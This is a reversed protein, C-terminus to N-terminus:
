VCFIEAPYDKDIFYTHFDVATVDDFRDLIERGRCEAVPVDFNDWQAEERHKKNLSKLEAVIKIESREKAKVWGVINHLIGGQM